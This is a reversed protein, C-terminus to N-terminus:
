AQSGWRLLRLVNESTGLKTARALSRSSVDPEDGLVALLESANSANNRRM